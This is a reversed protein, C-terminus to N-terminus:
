QLGLRDKSMAFIEGSLPKTLMDALNDHTSVHEVTLDGKAKRDRIMMYQVDIHKTRGSVGASTNRILAVAAENDVYLTFPRASQAIEALLKHGM